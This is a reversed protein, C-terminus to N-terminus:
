ENLGGHPVARTRSLIEEMLATIARARETLNEPSLAPGDGPLPSIVAVQCIRHAEMLGMGEAGPPLLLLRRGTCGDMRETLPLSM